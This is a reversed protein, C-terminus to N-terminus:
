PCPRCSSAPGPAPFRGFASRRPSLAAIEPAGCSRAAPPIEEIFKGNRVYHLPGGGECEPWLSQPPPVESLAELKGSITPAVGGRRTRTTDRHGDKSARTINMVM